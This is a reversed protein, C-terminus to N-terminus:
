IFNDCCTFKSCDGSYQVCAISLTVHLVFAAIVSLVYTCVYRPGNWQCGPWHQWEFWKDDTSDGYISKHSTCGCRVRVGTVPLVVAVITHCHLQSSSHAACALDLRIRSIITPHSICTTYTRIIRCLDPCVNLHGMNEYEVNSQAILNTQISQLSQEPNQHLMARHGSPQPLVLCMM